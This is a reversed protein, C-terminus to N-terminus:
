RLFSALSLRSLRSTVLHLTELQGELATFRAAADFQDVGALANRALGLSAREAIGHEAAEAIAQESTGLSARMGTVGDRAAILAGAAQSLHAQRADPDAAFGTVDVTAIAALAKLTARLPEADARPLFHEVRTDSLAVGAADQTAGGYIATEFGGGPSDFFDDLMAQAAAPTGATALAPALSAILAEAGALPARDPAAGSFLARGGFQANLAQIVTELAARAEAVYASGSVADGRDIAGLLGIGYDGATTQVVGLASQAAGARAGALGLDRQRAEIRNLAADIGFVPSLEGATHAALDTRMGTTLEQGAADLAARLRGSQDQLRLSSLLDPLPASLM